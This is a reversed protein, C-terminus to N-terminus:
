VGESSLAPHKIKLGVHKRVENVDGQIRDHAKQNATREERVYKVEKTLTDLADMIDAKDRKTMMDDKLKELDEKLAIKNFQEATLTM